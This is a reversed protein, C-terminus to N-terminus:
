FVRELIATMNDPLATGTVSVTVPVSIDREPNNADMERVSPLGTPNEQRNHGKKRKTKGM